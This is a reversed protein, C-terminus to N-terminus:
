RQVFERASPSHGADRYHKFRERALVRDEEATAVIEVLRQFRSFGQPLKGGLNVLVDDYRLGDLRDAIVVPTEPALKSGHMCHPVFGIAPQTWLTRDISAALDPDPAYVLVHRGERFLEGILLAAAVIKDPANHHFRIETM